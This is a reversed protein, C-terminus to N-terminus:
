GGFRFGIYFLFALVFSYVLVGMIRKITWAPPDGLLVGQWFDDERTHSNHRPPEYRSGIQLGSSTTYPPQKM